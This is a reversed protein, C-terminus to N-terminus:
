AFRLLWLVVFVVLGVEALERSEKRLLEQAEQVEEMSVQGVKGLGGSRAAAQAEVNKKMQQPAPAPDTSKPTTNFCRCPPETVPTSTKEAFCESYILGCFGRVKITRVLRQLDQSDPQRKLGEQISRLAGEYDKQEM